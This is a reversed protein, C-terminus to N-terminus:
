MKWDLLVEIMDVDFVPLGCRKHVKEREVYSDDIFIAKEEKIYDSKEKEEPIVIIEEFLQKSICYKELTNYINKRHKSLLIIKKEKNKEQYLLRMLDANVKKNIILTDDFDLYVCDYKFDIRYASYFARDVSINYGNDIIDVDYGWYDFLTLMVLNMGSNRTIGMTGPVRPSVEMLRYEGDMNKRVQFFWVGRFKLRQNLIEAISKIEDDVDLLQSRVSIGMRIRERSRLKAVRLRGHRDTFCDVTYEAGPLYECLVLSVDRKLLVKLEEESFVKQAGQSGQGIDPKVFVPYQKIELVSNYVEPTFTEKRLYRYTEAKSRCIRVTDYDSIIVQAHIELAHESLIMCASDHAPFVCDIGEQDIVDNLYEIFKPDDAYPFNTILKEFIFESHDDVSTGGYLEVFKSYKLANFIEFAIETGAPFILVKKM